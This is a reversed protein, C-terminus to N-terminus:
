AIKQMVGLDSALKTSAIGKINATLLFIAIAWETYGINGDAMPWQRIQRQRFTKAVITAGFIRSEERM